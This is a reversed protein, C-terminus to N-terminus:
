KQPLTGTVPVDEGVIEVKPARIWARGQGKILIGLAIAAANQPVDLVVAYQTEATTGLIPRNMMNDFGLVSGGPGDIRLWLGAGNQVDETRVNATFRIRKGNYPSSPAMHMLTGFADASLKGDNSQFRAVDETGPKEFSVEYAEPQSGAIGWATLPDSLQAGTVPIEPGVEELRSYHFKAEGQGDLLLGLAIRNADAPVDLVVAYRTEATTGQIPRGSMNDFALVEGPTAGDIRMWLGAWGKVQTTSVDAAFRLRKGRFAEVPVTRMVTGFGTPSNQSRLVRWAGTQSHEVFTEYLQPQSGALSWAQSADTEDLPLSPLTQASAVAGSLTQSIFTPSMFTFFILTKVLHKMFTIRILNWFSRIMILVSKM